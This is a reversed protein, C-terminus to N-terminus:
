SKWGKGLRKLHRLAIVYALPIRRRYVYMVFYYHLGTFICPPIDNM